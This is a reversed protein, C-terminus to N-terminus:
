ADLITKDNLTQIREVGVGALKNRISDAQQRIDRKQSETLGRDVRLLDVTKAVCTNIYMVDHTTMEGRNLHTVALGAAQTTKFAEEQDMAAQARRVVGLVCAKIFNVDENSIEVAYSSM